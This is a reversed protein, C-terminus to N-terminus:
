TDVNRVPFPVQGRKRKTKSAYNLLGSYLAGISDSEIVEAPARKNKWTFMGPRDTLKKRM